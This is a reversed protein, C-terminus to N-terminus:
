DIVAAAVAGIPDHAAQVLLFTRAFSRPSRYLLRLSVIMLGFGLVVGPIHIPGLPSPAVFSMSDGLHVATEAIGMVGRGFWIEHWSTHAAWDRFRVVLGIEQWRAGGADIGAFL